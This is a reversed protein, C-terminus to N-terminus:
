SKGSGPFQRRKRRRISRPKYSSSQGCMPEGRENITQETVNEESPPRVITSTRNVGTASTTSPEEDLSEDIEMINPGSEVAKNIEKSQLRDLQVKPM